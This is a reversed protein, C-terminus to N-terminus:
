NGNHGFIFDFRKHCGHDLRSAVNLRDSRNSINHRFRDIRVILLGIATDVKYGLGKPFAVM